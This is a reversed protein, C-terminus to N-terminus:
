GHFITFAHGKYENEYFVNMNVEGVTMCENASQLKGAESPTHCSFHPMPCQGHSTNLRM